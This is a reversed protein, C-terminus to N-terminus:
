QAIMYGNHRVTARTESIPVLGGVDRRRALQAKKVLQQRRIRDYALEGRAWAARLVPSDPLQFRIPSRLVSEVAEPSRRRVEAEIDSSEVDVSCLVELSPTAAAEAALVAGDM